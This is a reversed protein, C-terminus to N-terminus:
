INASWTIRLKKSRFVSFYTCFVSYSLLSSDPLGCSTQFKNRSWALAFVASSILYKFCSTESLCLYVLISKNSSRETTQSDLHLFSSRESNPFNELLVAVSNFVIAKVTLHGQGGGVAAGSSDASGLCFSFDTM